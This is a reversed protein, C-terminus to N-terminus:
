RAVLEAAYKIGTTLIIGSDICVLLVHRAPAKPLLETRLGMIREVAEKALM